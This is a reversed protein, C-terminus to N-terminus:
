GAQELEKITAGLSAMRKRWNYYDPIGLAERVQVGVVPEGAQALALLHHYLEADDPDEILKGLATLDITQEAVTFGEFTGEERGARIHLVDPSAVECRARLSRTTLRIRTKLRQLLMWYIFNDLSRGKDPDWRELYGANLFEVVVDHALEAADEDTQRMKAAQVRVVPVWRSYIEEVTPLPPPPTTPEGMPLTPDGFGARM